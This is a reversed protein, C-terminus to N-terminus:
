FIVCPMLLRKIQGGGGLFSRRVLASLIGVMARALRPWIYRCIAMIRLGITRPVVCPKDGRFASM